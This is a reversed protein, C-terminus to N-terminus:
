KKNSTSEPKSTNKIISMNDGYVHTKDDIAAGMMRLKYRLGRLIEVGLNMAVFEAGFVGIEITAPVDPRNTVMHDSDILMRIDVPKGLPKPTNPPIPETVYGYFEKWDMVPFQDDNIVPYTPDM